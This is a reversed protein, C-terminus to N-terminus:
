ERAVNQNQFKKASFYYCFIRKYFTSSISVQISKNLECQGREIMLSSPLSEFDSTLISFTENHETTYEIKNTNPIETVQIIMEDNLQSGNESQFNNDLFQNQPLDASGNEVSKIATLGKIIESIEDETKCNSFQEDTEPNQSIVIEVSEQVEVFDESWNNEGSCDIHSCNQAFDEASIEPNSEQNASNEELNIQQHIDEVNCLISHSFNAEQPIVVEYFAVAPRAFSSTTQVLDSDEILVEQVSDIQNKNETVEQDSDIQSKEESVELVYNKQNEEETVEQVFDLQNKDETVEQVSDIQSKDGPVELVSNMQNEGETAELNYDFYKELLVDFVMDHSLHPKSCFNILDSDQKESTVKLEADSNQQWNNSRTESPEESDGNAKDEIKQQCDKNNTENSKLFSELKHCVGNREMKESSKSISLTQHNEIETSDESEMKFHTGKLDMQISDSFILVHYRRVQSFNLNKEKSPNLIFAILAFSM